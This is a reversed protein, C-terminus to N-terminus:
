NGGSADARFFWSFCVCLCLPVCILEFWWLDFL